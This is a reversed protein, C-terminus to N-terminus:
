ITKLVEVLSWGLGFSIPISICFALPWAIFAPTHKKFIGALWGALVFVSAAIGGALM